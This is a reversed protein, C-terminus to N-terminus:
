KTEATAVNASLEFALGVDDSYQRVVDATAGVIDDVLRAREEDTVKQAAAMGVLAMANMRVFVTPDAFRILRTLREVRIHDFGADGISRELAAPDGFSHRRDVFSGLRQEAIRYSERFFSSEQLSRWVGVVLRGNARLARKMDKLAAVRDPFFQLGQHCLVVDFTEGDKLPIAAASGERWEIAPAISRAVDIMQAGVDVGVV